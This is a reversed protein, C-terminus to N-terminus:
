KSKDKESVEFIVQKADQNAKEFDSLRGIDLWYERLPFASITHKEDLLMQLFHPMDMYESDKLKSLLKPNVVYVGANIFFKQTPKEKIMEVNDNKLEVIGYPVKIDYERVCMTADANKEDHYELLQRFNISTLLDGNMILLSSNPRNSILSLAGATGLKKGEKIYSIEVGFQSGDGFHNEIQTSKYNLSLIIKTVGNNKLNEIIIELIPKGGVKLLPKPIDNTLPRLRTGLGGAMIVATNPLKSDTYSILSELGVIRNEKDVYPAYNITLNKMKSKAIVPDTGEPFSLPTRKMINEVSNDITIGQLLGRRVDGDTITGVLKHNDDVVLVMKIKQMEIIQIASLIQDTQNITIHKFSSM